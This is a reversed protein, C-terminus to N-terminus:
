KQSRVESKQMEKCQQGPLVFEIRSIEAPSYRNVAFLYRSCLHRLESRWGANPVEVWLVGARFTVARTRAAVASGCALPWALIPGDHAHRLSRAVVKELTGALSEM